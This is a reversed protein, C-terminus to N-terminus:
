NLLDRISTSSSHFHFVNCVIEIKNYGIALGQFKDRHTNEPTTQTAGNQIPSLNLSDAAPM